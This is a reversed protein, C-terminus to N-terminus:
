DRTWRKWTRFSGTYDDHAVQGNESIVRRIM